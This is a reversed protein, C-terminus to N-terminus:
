DCCQAPDPYLELWSGPRVNTRSAQKSSIELAQMEVAGIDCRGIPRPLGRYDIAPLPQGLTDLCGAPDGGNVAPSDYRLRYDTTNAQPMFRAATNIHDGSGTTFTCDQTTGILNYGASTVAGSCDPSTGEATNSVVITNHLRMTGQASFLGGADGGSQARNNAITSNNFTLAGTNYAGGGLPADAANASKMVRNHAILSNNVTMVSSNFIGGGFPPAPPTTTWITSDYGTNQLVASNELLLTGGANHIGAGTARGSAYTNVSNSIITSNRLILNGTNFVGGGNYAANQAFSTATVIASGLNYLGGGNQGGLYLIGYGALSNSIHSNSMILRGQNEISGGSWADNTVFDVTDLVVSGASDNFVAGGHYCTGNHSAFRHSVTLVGANYIAGGYSPNAGTNCDNNVMTSNTLMLFGLNYLGGGAGSRGNQITFGDLEVTANITM